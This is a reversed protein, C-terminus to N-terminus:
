AGATEGIGPFDKQMTELRGRIYEGMRAANDLVGNELLEIQKAAAAQGVSAHGGV